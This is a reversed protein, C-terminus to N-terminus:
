KEEKVKFNEYFDALEEEKQCSEQRKENMIRGENYKNKLIAYIQLIIKALCFYIIGFIIKTIKCFKNGKKKWHM